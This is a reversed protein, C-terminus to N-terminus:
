RVTLTTHLQPLVRIADHGYRCHAIVAACWAADEGALRLPEADVFQMVLAGGDDITLRTIHDYALHVWRARESEVVQCWLRRTTVVVQLLPTPRWQAQAARRAQGRRIAHRALAGLMAGAIFQQSGVLVAPGGSCFSVETAYFRAFSMGGRFLGVPYEGPEAGLRAQVEGPLEV